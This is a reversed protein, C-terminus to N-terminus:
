TRDNYVGRPACGLTVSSRIRDMDWKTLKYRSKNQKIYWEMIENQDDYSLQYDMFWNDLLEGRGNKELIDNFDISPTAEIYMEHLIPVVINDFLKSDRSQM